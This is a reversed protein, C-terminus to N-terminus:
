FRKVATCFFPKPRITTNTDMDKRTRADCSGFKGPSGVFKWRGLLTAMYLFYRSKAFQEGLCQRRGVAFPICNRRFVHDRPLLQGDAGLFREPRFNWPDGWINPDHHIRWINAFLLTGKSVDYGELNLDQTCIRGALIPVVTLLRHVELELAELHPCNPKDTHVPPRGRGITRDVERFVKDQYEPYNVLCLLTSALVSLTTLTGAAVTELVTFIIREDTFIVEQGQEISQRQDEILFDVLGKSCGNMKDKRKRFFREALKEKGNCMHNFKGRFGPAFRLFPLFTLINNVSPSVFYNVGEIFDWFINVEEDDDEITEGSLVLSVVNTLSRKLLAVADFDHDGFSAIKRSLRDLEQKIKEEFENFGEQGYVHLAKIVGKRMGNYVKSHADGYFVVSQSGNYMAEAFFFKSRDNMYRKYPEGALAKRIIGESNLCILTEHLLKIEFIDGYEEAYEFLKDLINEENIELANGFVPVGKPGPPKKGNQKQKRKLKFLIFITLLVLFCYILFM